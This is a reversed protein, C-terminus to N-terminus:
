AFLASMDNVNSYVLDTRLIFKHGQIVPEAEHELCHDGHVHLLLAGLQPEFAFSMDKKMKGNSRETHFRTAGGKCESLYILMSMETLCGQLLDGGEKGIVNSCDVHKCFSHGKEYKYVRLNPNCGIPVRGPSFLHASEQQLRRLVGNEAKQLRQFIRTSLDIANQQHMRFCERRATYKTAPHSTYEFGGSTECFEVWQQCEQSSFFSPVVWVRGVCLEQLTSPYSKPPLANALLHLPFHDFRSSDAGGKSSVGKTEYEKARYLAKSYVKRKKTM